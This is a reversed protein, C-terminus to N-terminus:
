TGHHPDEPPPPQVPPTYANVISRPFGEGKLLPVIIQAIRERLQQTDGYERAVTALANVTQAIQHDKYAPRSEESM